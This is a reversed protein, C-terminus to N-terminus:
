AIYCGIRLALSRPNGGRRPLTLGPSGYHLWPPSCRPKSEPSQVSPAGIGLGESRAKHIAERLAKRHRAEAAGLLEEQAQRQAAYAIPEGAAVRLIYM